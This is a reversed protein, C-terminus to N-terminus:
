ICLRVHGSNQVRAHIAPYEVAVIRDHAHESVRRPLFQLSDARLLKIEILSLPVAHQTKDICRGIHALQLNCEPSAVICASPRQEARPQQIGTRALDAASQNRVKDINRLALEPFLTQPSALAGEGGEHTVKWPNGENFVKRALVDIVVLRGPGVELLMRFVKDSFGVLLDPGGFFSGPMARSVGFHDFGSARDLKDLRNRLAVANVGPQHEPKGDDLIALGFQHATDADIDGFATREFVLERLRALHLCEAPQRAADRVIEIIQQGHDGTVPM